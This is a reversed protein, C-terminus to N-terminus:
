CWQVPTQNAVIDWNITFDLNNRKHKWVHKLLETACAKEENRFTHTHNNYRAKFDTECLGYYNM